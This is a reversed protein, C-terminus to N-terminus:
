DITNETSTNNTRTSTGQASSDELSTQRDLEVSNSKFKRRKDEKGHHKKHHGKTSKSGKTKKKKHVRKKHKKDEDAPNETRTMKRRTDIEVPAMYTAPPEKPGVRRNLLSNSADSYFGNLNSDEVFLPPETTIDGKSRLYQSGRSGRGSFRKYQNDTSPKKIKTKSNSKREHYQHDTDMSRSYKMDNPEGKGYDPEVQVQKQDQHVKESMRAVVTEIDRMRNGIADVLTQLNGPKEEKKEEKEEPPTYEMAGPNPNSQHEWTQAPSTPTQSELADPARRGEDPDPDNWLSRQQQHPPLDHDEAPQEVDNWPQPVETWSVLHQPKSSETSYSNGYYREESQPSSPKEKETATEEVDDNNREAAEAQTDEYYNNPPSQVEKRQRQGFQRPEEEKKRETEKESGTSLAIVIDPGPPPPAARPVTTDCDAEKRSSRLVAKESADRENDSVSLEYVPGEVVKRCVYM